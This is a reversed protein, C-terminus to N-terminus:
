ARIRSGWIEEPYHDPDPVFTPEPDFRWDSIGDKSRAVTLHSLGRMDEVRLLLLTEGDVLAAAPNFVTNARYPLDRAKIIPNGEYRTFLGRYAPADAM